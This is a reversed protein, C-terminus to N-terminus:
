RASGEDNPDSLRVSPTQPHGTQEHLHSSTVPCDSVQSVEPHPTDPYYRGGADKTLQGAEAMRSCYRRVTDADIDPLAAM